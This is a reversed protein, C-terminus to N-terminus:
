ASLRAYLETLGRATRDWSFEAARVRGLAALQSRRTADGLLHDLADALVGDNRVDVLEAAGAAVEAIAGNRSALVPTGVTMAELVPFGFGEYLSPYALLVAHELLARRESDDLAGPLVVRGRVAAPLAAVADDLAPRAAGDPGAVVLRVDPHRDAVAGFARVLAAHNKRPEIRSLALVFPQGALAAIRSPMSGSPGLDPVAFPVVALRGSDRLGPGYLDEVEGAVQETTVHVTVGRRVARRLIVGFQAVVADVTEPFLAFSCDHVTVLTPLRTPAVLFNTAHVVDAGRVWRDLRPHDTRTWAALLARTPIRVHRAGPPMVPRGAPSRTGLVYPLLRVSDRAQLAAVMEAVSRGIGTQVGLLPTADLAVVPSAIADM